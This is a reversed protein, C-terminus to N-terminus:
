FATFTQNVTASVTVGGFSFTATDHLRVTSASLTIVDFYQDTGLAGPDSITLKTDNNEFKWTGTQTQPDSTNCLTPGEDGVYTRDANFKVFNDRECASM